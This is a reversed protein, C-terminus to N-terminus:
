EKEVGDANDRENLEKLKKYADRWNDYSWGMRGWESTPPPTEAAEIVNGAIEYGDHSGIRWVEFGVIKEGLLVSAIAVDGERRCVRRLLGDKVYEDKLPKM